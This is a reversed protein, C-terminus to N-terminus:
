WDRKAGFQEPELGCGCSCVSTKNYTTKIKAGYTYEYDATYSYSSSVTGTGGCSRCKIYRKVQRYKGSSLLDKASLYVHSSAFGHTAYKGVQFNNGSEMKLVKYLYSGSRDLYFNGVCNSIESASPNALNLFLADFAKQQEADKIKNQETRAAVYAKYGVVEYNRKERYECLAITNVDRVQLPIEGYPVIQSAYFNTRTYFRYRNKEVIYGQESGDGYKVAYATKFVEAPKPLEINKNSELKTPLFYGVETTFGGNRHGWGEIEGATNLKGYYTIPSVATEKEEVYKNKKSSYKTTVRIVKNTVQQQTLLGSDPLLKKLLEETLLRLGDKWFGTEYFGDADKMVGFGYPKKNYQMGLYSKGNYIFSAHTAKGIEPLLSYLGENREEVKDPIDINIPLTSFQVVPYDAVLLGTKLNSTKKKDFDFQNYIGFGTRLGNVIQGEYYANNVGLGYARSYVPQMFNHAPKVYDTCIFSGYGDKIVIVNGYGLTISGNYFLTPTGSSDFDLKLLGMESILGKEFFAKCEVPGTAAQRSTVKYIGLGNAKNDAFSGKYLYENNNYMDEFYLEGEQMKGDALTGKFHPPKAASSLTGDLTYVRKKNFHYITYSALLVSDKGNVTKFYFRKDTPLEAGIYNPPMDTPKMETDTYRYIQAHSSIVSIDFCIILLLNYFIPKM